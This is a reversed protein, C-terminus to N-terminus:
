AANKLKEVQEHIPVLMMQGEHKLIDIVKENSRAYLVTNGDTLLYDESEDLRIGRKELNLTVKQIQQLSLGRDLMDCIILAKVAERASYFARPNSGAAKRDRFQPKLLNIDEWYGLQRRTRETLRMLQPVTYSRKTLKKSKSSANTLPTIETPKFEKKAM